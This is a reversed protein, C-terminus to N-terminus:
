KTAAVTSDSNKKHTNNFQHQKYAIKYVFKPLKCVFEAIKNTIAFDFKDIPITRNINKPISLFYYNDRDKKCYVLMEGVYVGTSIAYVERSQPIVKSKRGVIQTIFDLNVKSLM